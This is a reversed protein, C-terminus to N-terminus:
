SGDPFGGRHLVMPYHALAEPKAVTARWGDPYPELGLFLPSRKAEPGGVLHELLERITAIAEKGFKTQWDKEIDWVSKSYAEHVLRGKPTLVLVKVRSGASEPKSIALEREELRHLAMGIAEKSVGSLRPLDRIRVSEKGALRLVNSCIALSLGLDREFQIAFALLVKSLLIPLTHDRSSDGAAGPQAAAKRDPVKSLLDYGLIPLCDSLDDGFKEVLSRLSEHLPDIIEKGFREQWRKEIISSLGRWAELAKQGRATPVVIKEAGGPKISIYGWWKSMRTLLMRFENDALGTLRKLDRVSIGDDPVFRLFKLWMVMSVLWPASRSGTTSGFNTTRHPVQHEFENDFEITFAILVQSLLASLPLRSDMAAVM